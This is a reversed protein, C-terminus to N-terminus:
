RARLAPPAAALAAVARRVEPDSAHSGGPPAKATIDPLGDSRTARLLTGDAAVAVRQVGAVVAGVPNRERVAIRLGHPLDRAASVGLVTPFPEGASRLRGGRVHLTTMDRAVAELAERVRPADPGSVGTVTVREVAVLPSDRVWLWGLALLGLVAAFAAVARLPPRRPRPPLPPRMADPNSGRARSGAPGRRLRPATSVVVAVGSRSSVVSRRPPGAARSTSARSSSATTAVTRCASRAPSGSSTSAPPLLTTTASSPNGPVTSRIAVRPTESDAESGPRTRSSTWAPSDHSASTPLHTPAPRAPTSHRDPM